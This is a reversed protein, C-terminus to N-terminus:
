YHRYSRISCLLAKNTAAKTTEVPVEAMKPRRACRLDAGPEHDLSLEKQVRRWRTSRQGIVVQKNRVIQSKRGRVEVQTDCIKCVLKLAWIVEHTM